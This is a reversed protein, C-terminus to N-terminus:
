NRTWYKSYYTSKLYTAATSTNALDTSSIATTKAGSSAGVYWGTTNAFTVSTLSECEYFAYDGISTVGEPIKVSTLRICYNFAWDGISTVSDPITVSTLNICGNFASEGISTVSDPITVSTLSTCNDFACNGISTVSDPITIDGSATSGDILINNVIVLPNEAKKAALWPTDSFAWDGISTVSDPITVSTLSTCNKFAWDGISTVGEPMVVKTATPYTNTLVYYPSTTSTEHTEYDYNIEVDIGSEEWTCLLNGDKDYLGAEQTVPNQAMNINFYFVGKWTGATLDQASVLGTANVDMENYLWETKDQEITGTVDAKISNVDKMTVTEDPIVVVKMDSAIDGNVDVTYSSTKDADLTIVKPVIVSFNSTQSYKVNTTVSKNSTASQTEDVTAFIQPTVATVVMTLAMITALIRKKM